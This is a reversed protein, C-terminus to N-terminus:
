PGVLGDESVYAYLPVLEPPYQNTWITTGGIPNCIGKAGQTSERAGGSPARHDMWYIVTLMWKQTQIGNGKGPLSAEEWRHEEVQSKDVNGPGGLHRGLCFPEAKRSNCTNSCLDCQVCTDILWGAGVLHGSQKLLWLWNRICTKTSLFCCLCLSCVIFTPALLPPLDTPHGLLYTAESKESQRGHL